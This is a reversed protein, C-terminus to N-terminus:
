NGMQSLAERLPAESIRMLGNFPHNLELILYIGGAVSLAGVSLAVLM